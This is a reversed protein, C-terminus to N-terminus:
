TILKLRFTLHDCTSNKSNYVNLANHVTVNLLRRFLKMYWKSGRKRDLIYPQFKQDKLDVGGMQQNNELVPKKV